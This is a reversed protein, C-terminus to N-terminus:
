GPRFGYLLEPNGVLVKQLLAPDHDCWEPLQRMPAEDDPKEQMAPHPWETGWVVRLPEAALYGSALPLVDPVGPAASKSINVGGSLKVWGKGQKMLRTITAFAPHNVGPDGAVNGFHDFVVQVPLRELRPLLAPWLEAHGFLQLHWGFPAVRECLREMGHASAGGHALNFRIGRVGVAHMRELEADPVEADVVSVGRASEGLAAVADFTARNDTGYTSATVVVVRACTM